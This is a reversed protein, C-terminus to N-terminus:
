NRFSGDEKANPKDTSLISVAWTEAKIKGFKFRRERFFNEIINAAEEMGCVDLVPVSDDHVAEM